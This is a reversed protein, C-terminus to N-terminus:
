KECTLDLLTNPTQGVSMHADDQPGRDLCTSDATSMAVVRSPAALIGRHRTAESLVVVM